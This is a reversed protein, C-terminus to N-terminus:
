EGRMMKLERSLFAKTEVSMEEKLAKELKAIYDLRESPTLATRAEQGAVADRRQQLAPSIVTSNTGELNPNGLSVGTSGVGSGTANSLARSHNESPVGDQNFVEMFQRRLERIDEGTTEARLLLKADVAALVSNTQQPIRAVPQVRGPGVTGTTSSSMGLPTSGTPDTFNTVVGLKDEQSGKAPKPPMTAKAIDADGNFGYVFNDTLNKMREQVAPLQSKPVQQLAKSILPLGQLSMDANGGTRLGNALFGNVIDVPNEGERVQGQALRRVAQLYDMQKVSTVAKEAQTTPAGPPTPGALSEDLKGMARVTAVWDEPSGPAKRVAHRIWEIGAAARPNRAKMEEYSKNM